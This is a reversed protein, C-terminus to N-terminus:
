SSSSRRMWDAIPWVELGRLILAAFRSIARSRVMALSFASPQHLLLHLAADYGVLGVLGHGYQDLPAELVREVALDHGHRLLVEGVVFLVLVALAVDHLDHGATRDALALPPDHRAQDLLRAGLPGTAIIWCSVYRSTASLEPARVIWHM